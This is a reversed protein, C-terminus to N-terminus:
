RGWEGERYWCCCHLLTNEKNIVDSSRGGFLRDRKVEAESVFVEMDTDSHKAEEEWRKIGHNVTSVWQDAPSNLIWSTSQMSWQTELQSATSVYHECGQKIMGLIETYAAMEQIMMVMKEHHVM